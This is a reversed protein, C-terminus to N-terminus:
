AVHPIETIVARAVLFEMIKASLLRDRVAGSKKYYEVLKEKDLGIQAAEKEAMRVLDDDEVSIKEAEAIKEKLLMWKAQWVALDRSDHRFREEDFDKPLTRDRSRSRIDEIYSDLLSHILSDPVTIDHEKVIEASIADAVKRASWDAWYKAIDQRMNAMFEDVAAVKGGTIRSVLAGDFAPLEVKEIATVQLEVNLPEKKEEDAPRLTTRYGSGVRAGKLVSRIETALTDDALYFRLDKGKKGILPMGAHDLEQVDAVVIHEDDSAEEVPSTTSNTRRLRLVEQEVEADSVTHVPKEIRLGTYRRLQIEPRIEYQIRFRFSEGRKYDMDVMAPQGIPRIEREDMAKRYFDNALTDLVAHEISEGYLKKIMALPAKGKRFGKIEIREREKGYAREFHPLLETNSIVIDAEQLVESLPTIQVEM